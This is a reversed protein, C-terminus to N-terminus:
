FESLPIADTEFNGQPVGYLTVTNGNLGRADESFTLSTKGRQAQKNGFYFRLGCWRSGAVYKLVYTGLPVKTQFNRGGILYFWLASTREDSRQLKVLYDLGSETEVEFPAVRDAFDTILYDGVPPQLQALCNATQTAIVNQREGLWLFFCLPSALVALLLFYRRWIYLGRVAKRLPSEPLGAHCEGCQPIKHISYRRVRNLTGCNACRIEAM